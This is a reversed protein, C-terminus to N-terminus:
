TPMRFMLIVLQFQSLFILQINRVNEVFDPLEDLYRIAFTKKQKVSDYSKPWEDPARQCPRSPITETCKTVSSWLCESTDKGDKHVLM